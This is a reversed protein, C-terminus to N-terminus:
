AIKGISIQQSQPAIGTSRHLAAKTYAGQRGHKRWYWRGLVQGTAIGNIYKCVRTQKLNEDEEIRWESVIEVLDNPNLQM